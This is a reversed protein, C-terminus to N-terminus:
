TIATHQQPLGSILDVTRNVAPSTRTNSVSVLVSGLTPVVLPKYQGVKAWAVGCRASQCLVRHLVMFTTISRKSLVVVGLPSM